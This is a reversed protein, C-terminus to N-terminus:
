AHYDTIEVNAASGSRWEFCIRWQDNISISWQGKRDGSLAHLRNGPPVRLDELSIAAHLILLRRKATRLIDPPFRRSVEGEWIGETEKDRFSVIM